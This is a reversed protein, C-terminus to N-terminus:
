SGPSRPPWRPSAGPSRAGSPWTASAQGDRRHQDPRCRRPEGHGPPLWYNGQANPVLSYGMADATSASSRSLGPTAQQDPHLGRRGEDPRRDGALHGAPRDQRRRGEYARDRRHRVKNYDAVASHLGLTANELALGADVQARMQDAQEKLRETATKTADAQLQQQTAVEGSWHHFRRQAAEVEPSGSGYEKTRYNIENQWYAVKSQAQALPDMAAFQERAAQTMERTQAVGVKTSNGWHGLNYTFKDWLSPNAAEKMAAAAEAGGKLMAASWTAVNQENKQIAMTVIGFAVGLVGLAVGAGRAVTQMREAGGAAGMLANALGRRALGTTSTSLVDTAVAASLIKGALAQFMGALLGAIKFAALGMFVVPLIPAIFELAKALGELIAVFPPLIDVILNLIVPQVPGDGRRHGPVGGRAPATRPRARRHGAGPGLRCGRGARRVAPGAEPHRQHAVPLATTALESFVGILPGPGSLATSIAEALAPYFLPGLHAAPRRVAGGAHQRDARGGPGAGVHRSCLPSWRASWPSWDPRRPQRHGDTLGEFFTTLGSRVADTKFLALDSTVMGLIKLLVQGSPLAATFVSRLVGGLNIVV